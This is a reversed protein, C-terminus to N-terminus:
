TGPPIGLLPAIRQQQRIEEVYDLGRSLTYFDFRIEPPEEAGEMFALLTTFPDAQMRRKLDLETAWEEVYRVSSDLDSWVTCTLCAPDLRTLTTLSRLAQLLQHGRPHSAVFVVTMRVM